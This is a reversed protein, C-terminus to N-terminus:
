PCHDVPVLNDVALIGGKNADTSSPALSLHAVDATPVFTACFTQWTTTPTPSAWLLQDRGCRSSGGWIELHNTGSVEGQLLPAAVDILFSHSTGAKLPACLPESAGQTGVGGNASTLLYTKGDTPALQGDMGPYPRDSWITNNDTPFSGCSVWPSASSVGDGLWGPSSSGSPDGEISPNTFCVNGDGKTGGDAECDLVEATVMATATQQQQSFEQSSAPADKVTVSYATTATPCLHRMPNASGDEWTFSYPAVGGKAVAVVDACDGACALTVIDITVHDREVHAKLKDEPDAGDPGDDDAGQNDDPPGGPDDTRGVTAQTASCGALAILALLLSPRLNM